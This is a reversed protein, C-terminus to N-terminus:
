FLLKGNNKKIYKLAEKNIIIRDKKHILFYIFLNKHMKILGAINFKSVFLYRLSWLVFHSVLYIFPLNRFAVKIKNEALMINIFYKSKRGKESKKHLVDLKNSYFIKFGNSIARYSLDYEEMGYFFDDPYFGVSDFVEKKICHCVGIFHTTYFENLTIFKKNHSPFENLNIKHTFYDKSLFALIGITPDKNFLKICENIINPSLLEADDDLFLIYDSTAYKIGLNRGGAVGLNERTKIYILKPIFNQMNEVLSYDCTSNNNIIIIEKVFKEFDKQKIVSEVAEKTEIPRNYSIIVVSIKKM